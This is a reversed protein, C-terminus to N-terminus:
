YKHLMPAPKWQRTGTKGGDLRYPAYRTNSRSMKSRVYANRSQVIYANVSPQSVDPGTQSRLRKTNGGNRRFVGSLASGSPRKLPKRVKTPQVFTHLFSTADNLSTGQKQPTSFSGLTNGADRTDGTQFRNSIKNKIGFDRSTVENGALISLATESLSTPALNTLSNFSVYGVGVQSSIGSVPNLETFGSGEEDKAQDSLSSPRTVGIRQDGLYGDRRSSGIFVRPHLVPQKRNFMQDEADHPSSTQVGVHGNSRQPSFNDSGSSVSGSSAPLQVTPTNNIYKSEKGITPQYAQFSPAPRELPKPLYDLINLHGRPANVYVSKSYSNLLPPKPASVVNAPTVRGLQESQFDEFEFGGSPKQYGTLSDESHSTSIPQKGNSASPMINSTKSPYYSLEQSPNNPPNAPSATVRGSFFSGSPIQEPLEYSTSPVAEDQAYESSTFIDPNKGSTDFNGYNSSVYESAASHPLPYPASGSGQNDYVSTSLLTATSDVPDPVSLSESPMQYTSTDAPESWVDNESVGDHADPESKINQANSIVENEMIDQETQFHGSLDSGPMLFSSKITEIFHKFDKITPFSVGETSTKQKHEKVLLGFPHQNGASEQVYKQMSPDVSFEDPEHESDPNSEESLSTVSSADENNEYHVPERQLSDFNQMDDMPSVPDHDTNLSAGSHFQNSTQPGLEEAHNSVSYGHAINCGKQPLFCICGWLMLTCLWSVGFPLAM